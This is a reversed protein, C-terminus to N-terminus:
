RVVEEALIGGVPGKDVSTSVSEVKSPKSPGVNSFTFSLTVLAVAGILLTIKAKM